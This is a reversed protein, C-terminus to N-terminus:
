DGRKARRHAELAKITESLSMGKKVRIPSTGARRGCSRPKPLGDYTSIGDLGLGAYGTHEIKSCYRLTSDLATLERESYITFTEGDQMTVLFEKVITVAM